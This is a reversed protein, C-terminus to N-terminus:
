QGVQNNKHVTKSEIEDLIPLNERDVWRSILKDKFVKVGDYSALKNQYFQHVQHIRNDKKQRM